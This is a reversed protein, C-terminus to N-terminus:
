DVKIRGASQIPTVVDTYRCGSPLVYVRNKVISSAAVRLMLISTSNDKGKLVIESGEAAEVVTLYKPVKKM